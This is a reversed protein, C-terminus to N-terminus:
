YHRQWKRPLQLDSCLGDRGRTSSASLAGVDRSQNMIIIRSVPFDPHRLGLLAHTHALLVNVERGEELQFRFWSLWTPSVTESFKFANAKDELVAALVTLRGNRGNEWQTWGNGEPSNLVAERLTSIVRAAMWSSHTQIVLDSCFCCRRLEHELYESNITELPIWPHINIFYIFAPKGPSELIYSKCLVINFSNM